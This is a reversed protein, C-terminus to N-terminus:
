RLMARSVDLAAECAKQARRLGEIEVANKRRRRDRFLDRDVSVEIGNARLHDGLELPFAPPVSATTVGLDRCARLRLELAIEEIPRGSALLEDLGFREFPLAEIEPAEEQVRPIELSPLVAYRRGDHEVYLFPDPIPVPVEHRLEPSRM